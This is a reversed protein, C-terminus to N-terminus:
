EEEVVNVWGPDEDQLEMCTRAVGVTGESGKLGSGEMGATGFPCPGAVQLEHHQKCMMHQMACQCPGPGQLPSSSLKHLGQRVRAEHTM